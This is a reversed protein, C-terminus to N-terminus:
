RFWWLICQWIIALAAILCLAATPWDLRDMDSVEPRTTLM